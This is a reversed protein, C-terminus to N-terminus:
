PTSLGAAAMFLRLLWSVLGLALVSATWIGLLWLFRKWFPKRNETTDM